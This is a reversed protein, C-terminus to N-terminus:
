SIAFAGPNTVSSITSDGAVQWDFSTADRAGSVNVGFTIGNVTTPLNDGAAQDAIRVQWLNQWGISPTSTAFSADSSMVAASHGVLTMSAANYNGVVAVLGGATDSFRLNMGGLPQAPTGLRIGTFTAIGAVVTTTG